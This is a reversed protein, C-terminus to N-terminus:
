YLRSVLAVGTTVWTGAALMLVLTITVDSLRHFSGASLNTGASGLRRKMFRLVLHALPITLFPLMPVFYRPFGSMAAHSVVWLIVTTLIVKRWPVSYGSYLGVLGGGIWLVSQAIPLVALPMVLPHDHLYSSVRAHQDGYILKSFALIFTEVNLDLMYGARRVTHWLYTFPHARVFDALVKMGVPPLEWESLGEFPYSVADNTFFPGMDVTGLYYMHGSHTDFTVHGSVLWNRVLWPSVTLGFFVVSVCVAGIRSSLRLRETSFLVFLGWFPTITARTLAALGGAFGIVGSKWVPWGSGRGADPRSPPPRFSLSLLAVSMFLAMFLPETMMVGSSFVTIPNVAYLLGALFPVGGAPKEGDRYLAVVLCYILGATVADFFANLMRAALVSHGFVGYIAALALPYMPPTFATPEGTTGTYGLGQALRWGREDYYAADSWPMYPVLSVFLTRLALALLFVVVIQSRRTALQGPLRM